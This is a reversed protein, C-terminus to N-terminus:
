TPKAAPESQPPATAARGRERLALVAGVIILIVGVGVGGLGITHHYGLALFAGGVIIGVVGLAIAALGLNM